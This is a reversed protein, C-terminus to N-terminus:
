NWIKTGYLIKVEVRNKKFDEFKVADELELREGNCYYQHINTSSFLPNQVEIVDRGNYKYLVITNVSEGGELQKYEKNLWDLNHIPDKSGCVELGDTRDVKSESCSCISVIIAFVLLKSIIKM